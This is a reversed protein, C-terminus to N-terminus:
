IRWHNSPDKQLGGRQYCPGQVFNEIAEPLMEDSRGTNKERFRCDLNSECAYLFISIVLSHM